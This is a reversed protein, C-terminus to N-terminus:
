QSILFAVFTYSLLLTPFTPFSRTADLLNPWPSTMMTVLSSLVFNSSPTFLVRQFNFAFAFFDALGFTFGFQKLIITQTELYAKM